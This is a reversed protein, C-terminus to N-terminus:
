QIRIYISSPFHQSPNEFPKYRPDRLGDTDAQPDYEPFVERLANKREYHLHSLCFMVKARENFILFGHLLSTETPHLFTQLTRRSYDYPLSIDHFHVIVGAQLRPLVELILFNVDSGPKVVHSSDILLLDASRMNTFLELPVTQVKQKLLSIRALEVLRASPYPEICTIGTTQGTESENMELANLICCTSVGSGIEVVHGPKCHRIVGHLAQAEIYGYGAGFGKSSAERYIRNGAYENQYPLCISRLNHTQEELDMSVGPMESKRAWMSKTKQLEVIDPIPSYYHVPVVYLGLRALLKHARLFM